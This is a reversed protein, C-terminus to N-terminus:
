TVFEKEASIRLSGDLSRNLRNKMVDFITQRNKAISENESFRHSLTNGKKPSVFFITSLNVQAKQNKLPFWV